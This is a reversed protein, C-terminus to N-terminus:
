ILFGLVVMCVKYYIWGLAMTCAYWPKLEYQVAQKESLPLSLLSTQRAPSYPSCIYHSSPVVTYSTYFLMQGPRPPSCTLRIPPPPPRYDSAYLLWSLMVQWRVDCNSPPLLDLCFIVISKQFSRIRLECDSRCKRWM